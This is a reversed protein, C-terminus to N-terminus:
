SSSSDQGQGPGGAQVHLGALEELDALVPGAEVDAVFSVDHECREADSTCDRGCAPCRTTWSVHVRHQSRGIPGANIM